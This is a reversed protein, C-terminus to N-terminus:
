RGRRQMGFMVLGTLFWIIGFWMTPLINNTLSSLLMGSSIVLMWSSSIFLSRMIDLRIDDDKRFLKFILFLWIVLMAAYYWYYGTENANDVITPIINDSDNILTTNIEMPSVNKINDLWTM